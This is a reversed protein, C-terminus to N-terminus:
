LLRSSLTKRRSLTAGISTRVHGILQLAGLSFLTKGTREEEEEEEDDDDEEESSSSDSSMMEQKGAALRNYAKIRM